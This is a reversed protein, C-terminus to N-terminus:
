FVNEALAGTFICKEARADMASVAATPRSISDGTSFPKALGQEVQRLWPLAVAPAAGTVNMM